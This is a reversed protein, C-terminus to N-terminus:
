RRCAARKVPLKTSAVPTQRVVGTITTQQMPGKMSGVTFDKAKGYLCLKSNASGVPMPEQLRDWVINLPIIFGGREVSQAIDQKLAEQKFLEALQDKVPMNFMNCKTDSESKLSISTQPDNM